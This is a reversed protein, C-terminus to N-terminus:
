QPGGPVPTGPRAPTPRAQSEGCNTIKVSIRQKNNMENSEAVSTTNDVFVGLVHTGNNLYISGSAKRKQGAKLNAFAAQHLTANGEFLRSQFAGADESGNNLVDYQYRFECRDGRRGPGAATKADVELLTGWNASKNGLMLTPGPLLDTNGAKPPVLTAKVPKIPEQCKVSYYAKDSTKAKNWDTEKGALVKLEVYGNINNGAAQFGKAQPAPNNQNIGLQNQANAAKGIGKFTTSVAKWGSTNLTTTAVPGLAGNHSWRYKVQQQGQNAKLTGEAKIDVPCTGTHNKPTVNLTPKELTFPAALKASNAPASPKPTVPAADCVYDIRINQWAHALMTNMGNDDSCQLYTVAAIRTDQHTDSKITHSKGLVAQASKGKNQEAKLYDNCAKVADSAINAPVALSMQGAVEKKDDNIKSNVWKKESLKHHKQYYSAPGVASNDNIWWHLKRIKRKSRCVGRSSGEYKISQGPVVATYTTGDSKVHVQPIADSQQTTISYIGTILDGPGVNDPAYGAGLCTTSLALLGAALVVRNHPSAFM